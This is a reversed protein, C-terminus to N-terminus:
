RKHPHHEEAPRGHKASQEEGATQAGGAIFRLVCVKLAHVCCESPPLVNALSVLFTIHSKRLQEDATFLIWVWDTM